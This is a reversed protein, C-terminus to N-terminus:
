ILGQWILFAVVLAALVFLNLFVTVGIDFARRERDRRLNVTQLHAIIDDAAREIRATDVQRAIKPHAMMNLAELIHDIEAQHRANLYGRGRRLTAPVSDGGARLRKRMQTALKELTTELSKDFPAVSM